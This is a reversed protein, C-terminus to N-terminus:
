GRASRRLFLAAGWMKGDRDRLALASIEFQQPHGSVLVRVPRDLVEQQAVLKLLATSQAGSDALIDALVLEGSQWDLLDRAVQTAFTFRGALDVYVIGVDADAARTAAIEEAPPLEHTVPSTPPETPTAAPTPEDPAPALLPQTESVRQDLRPTIPSEVLEPTAGPSLSGDGPTGTMTDLIHHVAHHSRRKRPLLGTNVKGAEPSPEHSALSKAPTLRAPPRAEGIFARRRRDLFLLEAITLLAASILVWAWLDDFPITTM